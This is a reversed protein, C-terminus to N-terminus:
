HNAAMFLCASIELLALQFSVKCLSLSSRKGDSREDSYRSDVLVDSREM